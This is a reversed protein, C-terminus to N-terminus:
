TNINKLTLYIRLIFFMNEFKIDAAYKASGTVKDVGDIRLLPKGVAIYSDPM